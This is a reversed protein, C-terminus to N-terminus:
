YKMGKESFLYMNKQITEEKESNHIIIGYANTNINKHPFTKMERPYISLLSIAPYHSSSNLTSTGNQLGRATHSCETKEVDNDNSTM